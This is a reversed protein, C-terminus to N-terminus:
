DRGRPKRMSQAKSAKPEYSKAKVIFIQRLLCIGARTRACM